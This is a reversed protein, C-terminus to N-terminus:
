LARRISAVPLGALRRDVYIGGAAVTRVAEVLQAGSASKIFYGCAGSRLVREAYRDEAYAALAMVHTSPASIILHQLFYLGDRESISLDILLLDPRHLAVLDYAAKEDGAAGCLTFGQERGIVAAMGERVLEHDDALVIRCGRHTIEAGNIQDPM